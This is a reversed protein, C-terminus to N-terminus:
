KKADGPTILPIEIIWGMVAFFYLWENFKDTFIAPALDLGEGLLAIGILAFAQVYIVVIHWWKPWAHKLAAKRILAFLMLIASLGFGGFAIYTTWKHAEADTGQSYIGISAYGLAGVIGFLCALFSLAKCAPTFRKYMFIFHPVLLIGTALEATNYFWRGDPNNEVGGLYSTYVTFLSFGGPYLMAAIVTGTTFMALVIFFYELYLRKSAIGSWITRLNSALSTRTTSEM